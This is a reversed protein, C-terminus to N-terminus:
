LTLGVEPFKLRTKTSVRLFGLKIGEPFNRGGGTHNNFPIAWYNM